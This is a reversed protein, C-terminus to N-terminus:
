ELPEARFTMHVFGNGMSEEAAVWITTVGDSGSLSWSEGVGPRETDDEPVDLGLELLRAALYRSPVTGAWPNNPDAPGPQNTTMTTIM